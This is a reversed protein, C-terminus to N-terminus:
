AFPQAPRAPSVMGPMSITVNPMDHDVRWRLADAHIWLKYDHGGPLFSDIEIERERRIRALMGVEFGFSKLGIQLDRTLDFVKSVIQTSDQLLDCHDDWPENPAIDPPSALTPEDGRARLMKEDDFSKVEARLGRGKLNGARDYVGILHVKVDLLLFVQRGKDDVAKFIKTSSERVERTDGMGVGQLSILWGSGRAFRLKESYRVTAGQLPSYFRFLPIKLRVVQTGEIRYDLRAILNKLKARITDAPLSSSIVTRYSRLLQNRTEAEVHLESFARAFASPDALAQDIWPVSRVIQISRHYPPGFECDCDDPHNWANCM